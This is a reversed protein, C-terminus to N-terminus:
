FEPTQGGRPEVFLDDWLASAQSSAFEAWVRDEEREKDTLSLYYAETQRELERQREAKYEGPQSNSKMM